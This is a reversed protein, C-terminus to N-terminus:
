SFCHVGGLPYPTEFNLLVTSFHKRPFPVLQGRAAGTGDPCRPCSGGSGGQRRRGQALGTSEQVNTVTKCVFMHETTDDEEGCLPCSLDGQFMNKYNSKLPLMNLKIKLLWEIESPALSNFYKKRDFNCTSCFRLKTSERCVDRAKQELFTNIRM